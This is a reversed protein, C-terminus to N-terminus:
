LKSPRPTLSQYINVQDKSYEVTTGSANPVGTHAVVEGYGPNEFATDTVVPNDSPRKRFFISVSNNSNNNVNNTFLVTAFTGAWLTTDEVTTDIATTTNTTTIAASTAATTSKALLFLATALYFLLFLM